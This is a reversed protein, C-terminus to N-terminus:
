FRYGISVLAVTQEAKSSITVPVSGLSASELSHSYNYKTVDAGLYIHDTLMYKAGGGYIIGDVPDSVSLGFHNRKYQEDARAYGLRVFALLKNNLYYGPEVAFGVNNTLKQRTNDHYFTSETNGVKQTSLNYFVNASLNFDSGLDYGYGAALQGALHTDLANPQDFSLGGFSTTSVNQRHIKSYQSGAGLSLYAGNFAGGNDALLPPAALLALATLATASKTHKMTEGNINM